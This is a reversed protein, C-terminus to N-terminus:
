EQFRIGLFIEFIWHYIWRLVEFSLFEQPRGCINAALNKGLNAGGKKHVWLKKFIASDKFKTGQKNRQRKRLKIKRVGRRGVKQNVGFWNQNLKEESKIIQAGGKFLPSHVIITEHPIYTQTLWPTYVVLADKTRVYDKPLNSQQHINKSGLLQILYTWKIM